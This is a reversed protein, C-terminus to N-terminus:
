ENQKMSTQWPIRLWIFHTYSKIGPFWHTAAISKISSLGPPNTPKISLVFYYKRVRRLCSDIQLKNFSCRLLMDCIVTRGARHALWPEPRIKGFVSGSGLPKSTVRLRLFRADIPFSAISYSTQWLCHREFVHCVGCSQARPSIFSDCHRPATIHNTDSIMWCNWDRERNPNAIIMRLRAQSEYRKNSRSIEWSPTFNLFVSRLDHKMSLWVEM